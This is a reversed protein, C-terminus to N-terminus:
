AFLERVYTGVVIGLLFTMVCIFQWGGAVSRAAAIGNQVGDTFAQASLEVGRLRENWLAEFVLKAAVTQNPASRAQEAAACASEFLAADRVGDAPGDIM